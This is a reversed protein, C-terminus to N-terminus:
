YPITICGLIKHAAPITSEYVLVNDKVLIIRDYARM